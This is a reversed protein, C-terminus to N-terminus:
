NKKVEKRKAAYKKMRQEYITKAQAYKNPKEPFDAETPEQPKIPYALDKHLIVKLLDNQHPMDQGEKLNYREIYALKLGTQTNNQSSTTSGAPSPV